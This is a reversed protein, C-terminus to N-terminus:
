KGNPGPQKEKEAELVSMRKELDEIKERNTRALQSPSIQHEIWGIDQITAIYLSVLPQVMFFLMIVFFVPSRHAKEALTMPNSIWGFVM